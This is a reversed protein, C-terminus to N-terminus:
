PSIATQIVFNEYEPPVVFRRAFSYLPHVLVLMEPIGIQMLKDMPASPHVAAGFYDWHEYDFEPYPPRSLLARSIPRDNVVLCAPQLFTRLRM